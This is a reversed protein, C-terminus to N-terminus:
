EPDKKKETERIVTKYKPCRINSCIWSIKAKEGLKEVRGVRLKIDCVPCTM